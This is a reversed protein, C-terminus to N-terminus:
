EARRIEAERLERRVAPALRALNTKLVYDQAGAKMLAVATDEGVTGSVVIFPIDMGHARLLELARLASFQPMSCDSVIIQPPWALADLYAAEAEARRWEIDFGESRLVHVDLEADDASDEVILVRTSPMLGEEHAEM